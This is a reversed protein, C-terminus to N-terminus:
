IVIFSIPLGVNQMVNHLTIYIYSYMYSAVNVPEESSEAPALAQLLM